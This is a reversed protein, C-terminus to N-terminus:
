GEFENNKEKKLQGDLSTLGTTGQELAEVRVRREERWQPGWRTEVWLLPSMFLVVAALFTFGWGCGMREVM